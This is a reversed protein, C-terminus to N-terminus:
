KIILIEKIPILQLQINLLLSCDAIFGRILTENNKNVLRNNSRYSQAYAKLRSLEDPSLTDLFYYTNGNVAIGILTHM